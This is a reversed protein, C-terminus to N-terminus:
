LFWDDDRNVYREFAAAGTLGSAAAGRLYVAQKTAEPVDAGELTDLRKQTFAEKEDDTLNHWSTKGRFTRPEKDLIELKLKNM